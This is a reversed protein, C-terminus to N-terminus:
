NGHSSRLGPYEPFEPRVGLAHTRVPPSCIVDAPVIRIPRTQRAVAYVVKGKGVFDASTLAEMRCRADRMCAERAAVELSDFQLKGSGMRTKLNLLHEIDIASVLDEEWARISTFGARQLLDEMKDPTDVPAHRTQVAPDPPAAGYKDLCETWIRSATSEVEGRWTITGVRGGSRLVRRAEHLGDVPSELHFLVFVLLVLDVGGSAIPLQRADAVVRALWAPALALMGPSRDIGVVCASPFTTVIDGSLSGVGAGVDIVREVAAGAFESLLRRGSIRLVPAWLDRYACAERNYREALQRTRDDQM